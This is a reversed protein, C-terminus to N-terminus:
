QRTEVYCNELARFGKPLLCNIRRERQLGADHGGVAQFRNRAVSADLADWGLAWSPCILSIEDLGVADFVECGDAADLAVLEALESVEEAVEFKELKAGASQSSLGSKEM